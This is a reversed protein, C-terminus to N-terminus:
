WTTPTSGYTSQSCGSSWGSMPGCWFMQVCLRSNAEPFFFCWDNKRWYKGKVPRNLSAPKCSHIGKTIDQALLWSLNFHWKWASKRTPTAERQTYCHFNFRSNHLLVFAVMTATAFIVLSLPHPSSFFLTKTDNKQSVLLDCNQSLQCHLIQLNVTVVKWQSSLVCWFYFCGFSKLSAPCFDLSNVVGGSDGLVLWEM